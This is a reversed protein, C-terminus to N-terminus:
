SEFLMSPLNNMRILKKHDYFIHEKKPAKKKSPIDNKNTKEM